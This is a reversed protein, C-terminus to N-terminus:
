LNQATEDQISLRRISFCRLLGLGETFDNIEDEVEECAFMGTAIDLPLISIPLIKVPLISTRFV